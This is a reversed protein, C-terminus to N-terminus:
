ESSSARTKGKATGVLAHWSLRWEGFCPRKLNKLLENSRTLMYNVHLTLIRQNADIGRGIRGSVSEEENVGVGDNRM